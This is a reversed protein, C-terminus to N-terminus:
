SGRSRKPLCTEENDPVRARKDKANNQLGDADSLILKDVSEVQRPLRFSVCLMNKRPGVDRVVRVETEDENSNSDILCGPCGLAKECRQLVNTEIRITDEPTRAKEDFCHVHVMPRVSTDEFKWGRFANLFEPAMQPLNMIFHDVEVKDNNMKHIFQRADMNYTELRDSFCRNLDANMQLYKYSIPNLDNAHCTIPTKRYHPANTSTLPVAFPGVGAMADAVICNTKNEESKKQKTTANHVIHQVLREHEGQLRSNWYVCAFDLKFRCGHEKLQVEMLSQHEEGIKMQIQMGIDASKDVTIKRDSVERGECLSNLANLDLGEGAIIEMPFTRFENEITGVKNVVVRIRPNKDIIAKGILYKYALSEFRLNVHAIHGAIEFSSPVEDINNSSRDTASSTPLLCRLVQDVTMLSYPSASLQIYSKRVENKSNHSTTSTKASALLSRVRTDHFIADELITEANLDEKNSDSRHILVVKREKKPEYWCENNAVDEVAYDIGEEVAYVSKRKPESFIVDHLLKQIEGTRKAPIVLAPYFLTSSEFFSQSPYASPPYIGYLLTEIPALPPQHDM